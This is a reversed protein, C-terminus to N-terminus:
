TLGMPQRGGDEREDDEAGVEIGACYRLQSSIQEVHPQFDGREYTAAGRLGAVHDLVCTSEYAVLGPETDQGVIEIRGLNTFM